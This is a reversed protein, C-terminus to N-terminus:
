IRGFGKQEPDPEEERDEGYASSFKKEEEESLRIVTGHRFRGDVFNANEVTFKGSALDDTLFAKYGGNDGM